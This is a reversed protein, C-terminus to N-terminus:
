PNFRQPTLPGATLRSLAGRMTNSRRGCPRTLPSIARERADDRLHFLEERVDGERRIYTWDGETLAALPWRPNVKQSPDPSFPDLPVLESLAQEPAVRDNATTPSSGNWFRALSDGPFNSGAKLGLIDVITAPLDRLSVTETVVRQLRSGVASHDRPSCPAGDRLSENRAPIRRSTRRLKRRPGGHHDGLDARICCPSRTRRDFPGVARRSQRHM